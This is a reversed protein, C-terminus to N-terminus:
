CENRALVLGNSGKQSNQHRRRPADLTGELCGYVELITGAPVHGRNQGLDMGAQVEIEQPQAADNICRAHM